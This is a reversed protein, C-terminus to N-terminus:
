RVVWIEDVTAVVFPARGPGDPPCIGIAHVGAGAPLRMIEPAADSGKTAARNWTRVVVADELAPTDLAHVIEPAGDEDLDGVAVQAGAGDITARHGGQDRLELVGAERGAWVVMPEGRPTVLAASAFADYKGGVSAARPPPDSATCSALPGTVVFNSVHACASTEGDPVAIGPLGAVLELRSNLRVSRARDSSGVDIFASGGPRPVITAFGIPERLPTPSVPALDSWNRSAIPV